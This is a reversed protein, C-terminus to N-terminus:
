VDCIKIAERLSDLKDPYTPVFEQAVYGKFGTALIAKMIAPYNLEQSNNIENRGPVGGTHYHAIYPHYDRITQIVDGEEIQMHYIDYLLKFNESGIRKCLEVGWVTHNCMYDKHDRKSNLLEMVMTVGNKEAVPLIKELATQCNRLGTEDDMGKRAGSFCILNKYGAKKMIPIVELYEKILKDHYEPNNLGKYLSNDGLTYCMSSYIGYRQMTPWEKPGTLDIASFGIDKVAKCLDELSLYSFTWQSVSHNINGKLPGESPKINCTTAIPMTPALFLAGSGLTINKLVSRRSYKSKM